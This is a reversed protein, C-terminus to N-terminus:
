SASCQDLEKAIEAISKYSLERGVGCEAKFKKAMWKAGFESAEICPDLAAKDKAWDKYAKKFERRLESTM